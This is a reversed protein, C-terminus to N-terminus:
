DGRGRFCRGMLECFQEAVWRLHFAARWGRNPDHESRRNPTVGSYCETHIAAIGNSEDDDFMLDSVKSWPTDWLKSGSLDDTFVEGYSDYEGSMHQLVEGDKLLFLKVSQGRFSNSLIPRNCEKCMFSFCGM